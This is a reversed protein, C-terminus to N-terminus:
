GIGAFVTMFIILNTESEDKFNRKEWRSGLIARLKYGLYDSQNSFQTALVVQEFDERYGAPLPDPRTRMNRFVEYEFGSELRLTPL